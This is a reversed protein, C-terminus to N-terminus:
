TPVKGALLWAAIEHLAADALLLDLMEDLIHPGWVKLGWGVADDDDTNDFYGMFKHRGHWWTYMVQFQGDNYEMKSFHAPRGIAKEAGVRWAEGM